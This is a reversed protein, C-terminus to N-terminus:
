LHLWMTHMCEGSSRLPVTGGGTRAAVTITSSQPIPKSVTRKPINKGQKIKKDKEKISKEWGSIEKLASSIEEANQRIQLQVQLTKDM